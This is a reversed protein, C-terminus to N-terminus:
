REATDMRRLLAFKLYRGEPHELAVPHDPPAESRELLAWVGSRRLGTRVSEEWRETSLRATCSATALLGDVSVMPGVRAALDRYASRAAGDTSKNHTLSPPDCILFDSKTSPNWKFVDAAEFGHLDPALGNLRFNEKADELAPAAIDVTLVRSAGGAAAYVSFGGTYGFLNFVVRGASLEGVRRRHERQDLFLGTKQGDYPRALFRLGHERVVVQEPAAPGRLTQGGKGGDVREVGLRRFITNVWGLASIADVIADLHPEWAASYVRVVALDAYRDVVLGPLQDGEGNLLRYCDTDGPVVRRRLVDARHLRERLLEPIPRARRGLVKVAIPGEDFLGFVVDRGKGDVLMVPEGPRASGRLGDRWVWPHGRAVTGLADESLTLTTLKM